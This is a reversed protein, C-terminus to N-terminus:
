ATLKETRKRNYDELMLIDEDVEIPHFVLTLGMMPYTCVFWSLLPLMRSTIPLASELLKRGESNALGQKTIGEIGDVDFM